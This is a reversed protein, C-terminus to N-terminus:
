ILYLNLSLLRSMARKSNNFPSLLPHLALITIMFRAKMVSYKQLTEKREAIKALPENRLHAVKKLFEEQNSGIKEINQNSHEDIKDQYNAIIQPVVILMM